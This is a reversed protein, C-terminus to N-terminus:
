ASAEHSTHIWFRKAHRKTVVTSEHLWDERGLTSKGRCDLIHVIARTPSFLVFVAIYIAYLLCDVSSLSNRRVGGKLFVERLKSM